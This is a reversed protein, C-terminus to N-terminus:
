TELRSGGPLGLIHDLIAECESKTGSSKMIALRTALRERFDEDSEGYRRKLRLIRSWYLDLDEPVAYPLQLRLGMMSIAQSLEESARAYSWLVANIISEVFRPDNKDMILICDLSYSAFPRLISTTIHYPAAHVNGLNTGIQYSAPKAIAELISDLTYYQLLDEIAEEDFVGSDFIM